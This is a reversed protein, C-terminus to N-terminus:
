LLAADYLIGICAISLKLKVLCTHLAFVCARVCTIFVFLDELQHLTTECLCAFLCAPRIELAM